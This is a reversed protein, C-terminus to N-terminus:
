SRIRVTTCACCRPIAVRSCAACAARRAISRYGGTAWTTCTCGAIATASQGSSAAIAAIGGELAAFKKELVEVTPNSLRTYFHGAAKLDFLDALEEASDYKFTTSQIIPAVRSEGNKPEWGAQVAITDLHYKKM